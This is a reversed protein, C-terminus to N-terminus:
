NSVWHLVAVGLDAMRDPQIALAVLRCDARARVDDGRLDGVADAGGEAMGSLADARDVSRCVIWDRDILFVARSGPLFQGALDQVARGRLGAHRREGFLTCSRRHDHGQQNGVDPTLKEMGGRRSRDRHRRAVRMGWCGLVHYLCASPRLAFGWDAMLNCGAYCRLGALTPLVEQLDTSGSM